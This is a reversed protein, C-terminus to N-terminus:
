PCAGPVPSAAAAPDETNNLIATSPKAKYGNISGNKLIAFNEKSLAAAFGVLLDITKLIM